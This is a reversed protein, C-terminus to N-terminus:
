GIRSGPGISAGSDVVIPAEWEWGTVDVGEAIVNGSADRNADLYSHVKGSLLDRTAEVYREPTGLDLWYGDANYSYIGNGVLQPFVDHEFSKNECSTPLPM